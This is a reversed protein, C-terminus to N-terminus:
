EELTKLNEYIRDLLSMFQEQEKESFGRFAVEDMEKISGEMQSWMERGKRTLWLKKKRKDTPSPECRVLDDREMRKVLGAVTSRDLEWASCVASQTCGDDTALYELIRPQGSCLGVEQAKKLIFNTFRGKVLSVRHHVENM